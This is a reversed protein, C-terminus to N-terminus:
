NVPFAFTPSLAPHRRAILPLFPFLSLLHGRGQGEQGMCAVVRIPWTKHTLGGCPSWGQLASRCLPWSLGQPSTKPQGEQNYGAVKCSSLSPSIIKEQSERIDRILAFHADTTTASHTRRQAGQKLAPRFSGLLTEVEKKEAFVATRVMNVHKTCVARNWSVAKMQSNAFWKVDVCSFYTRKARTQNKCIKTYIVIETTTKNHM